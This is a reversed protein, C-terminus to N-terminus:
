IDDTVKVVVMTLDDHQPATGSFINIESKVKNLIEEASLKSHRNVLDKLRDEGFEEGDLDMSESIGDTYFIFVDGPAIAVEREEIEKAFIEGTALGIGLGKPSLFQPERSHHKHMILPNHGARAFFLKNSVVDFVGWIVSIFVERPSNKYFIENLETLIQRPRWTNRALTQIIGKAMTMYFAASVGKGSVDGIVVSFHNEDAKIFDYYDGGVEMAPNCIAAIQLKPFTPVHEPLFRRQVERAIELEQLMRQREAIRSVYEPVYHELEAAARGRFVLYIALGVILIVAIFIVLGYSAFLGQPDLNLYRFDSVFYFIFGFLIRTLIDYKLVIWAAIFAVPIALVFGVFEPKFDLNQMAILFTFALVLFYLSNKQIKSKVAAPFYVFFIGTLFSIKVISNFFGATAERQFNILWFNDNQPVCQIAPILSVVWQLGALLALSLSAFFLARLVAVGIECVQITGGLILDATEIKQPFFERSISHSTVFLALFGVAIFLAGFFGGILMGSVSPYAALAIMLYSFVFMLGGIVAGRRLDLEDRRLRRVFSTAIFIFMLFWFVSLLTIFTYELWKGEDTNKGNNTIAFDTDFSTIRDSVFKIETKRLLNKVGPIESDFTYFHHIRSDKNEHKYESLNVQSSDVGRSTLFIKAQFIAESKSLEVTSNKDRPRTFGIEEGRTNYKWSYNIWKNELEGEEGVQTHGDEEIEGKYEVNIAAIGIPLNEPLSDRNQQVFRLLKKDFLFDIERKLGTEGSNEEVFATEAKQVIEDIPMEFSLYHWFWAATGLQLFLYFLVISTLGAFSLIIKKSNKM